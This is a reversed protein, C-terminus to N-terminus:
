ENVQIESIYQAPDLFVSGKAFDRRWGDRERYADGLPDGLDIQYNEYFWVDEYYSSDAYRFSASGQNALLYSVFAFRARDTDNMEGQSVLILSKGMEQAIVSMEQQAEWDAEDYYEDNYGIAFDEIMAGDLHNIYRLWVDSNEYETINAYVPIQNPKFYTEQAYALFAEMEAQYSEDDPYAALVQGMRHFKNLSAEANDIFIGDWGFSERMEIARELWFERYEANGPDMFVDRGDRVIEGNKDHLFWDPHEEAIECFDGTKYAVQNGWPEENCSGPDQIQVFLLYELIPSEVGLTKLEDKEEEDYHTLIFTDYNEALFYLPTGDEPPKYFWALQVFDRRSEGEPLTNNEESEEPIKEEEPSVTAPLAHAPKEESFQPFFYLVIGLLFIAAISFVVKKFNM